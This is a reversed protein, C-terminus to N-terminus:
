FNKEFSNAKKHVAQPVETSTSAPKKVVGNVYGNVTCMFSREIDLEATKPWTVVAVLLLNWVHM